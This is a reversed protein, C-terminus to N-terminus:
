VLVWETTIIRHRPLRKLLETSKRRGPCGAPKLPQQPPWTIATITSSTNTVRRRNPNGPTRSGCTQNVPTCTIGWVIEDGTGRGMDRCKTDVNFSFRCLRVISLANTLQQTSNPEYKRKTDNDNRLFIKSYVNRGEESSSRIRRACVLVNKEMREGMWSSRCSPCSTLTLRSFKLSLM